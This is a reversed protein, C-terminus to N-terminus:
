HPAGTVQVRTRNSATDHTYNVQTGSVPGGSHVVQVLRGRADYTYTITEAALMESTFVLTVFVTVACRGLRM